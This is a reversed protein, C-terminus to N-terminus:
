WYDLKEDQWGFGHLRVAKELKLFVM